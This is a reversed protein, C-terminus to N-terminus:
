GASPIPKSLIWAELVQPFWRHELQQVALRIAEPDSHPAVPTKAQFLIRGDDYVENVLHITIGTEGEGARQVAEHVHMGYMGIGGFKPLLSPHINVIREPYAALLAPPVKWLFGALVVHTIDRAILRQPVVARLSSRDFVLTDVGAQRAHELAGAASKNSAVLEVRVEDGHKFHELIRQANSGSGSAFIAIRASM